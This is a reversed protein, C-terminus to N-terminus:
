RVEGISQATASCPQAPVEAPLSRRARPHGGARRVAAQAGAGGGAAVEACRPQPFPRSRSTFRRCRRRCRGGRVPPRRRRQSRDRAGAGGGAAVEACTARRMVIVPRRKARYVPASVEAPRSRGHIQRFRRRRRRHPGAQARGPGGRVQGSTQIDPHGGVPDPRRRRRRCRGGRLRVMRRPASAQASLSRGRGAWLAPAEAPLSRRAGQGSDPTQFTSPAGAGGGALVQARQSVKLRRRRRRGPGREEISVGLM